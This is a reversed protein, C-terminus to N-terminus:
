RTTKGHAQLCAWWPALDREHPLSLTQERLAEAQTATWGSAQLLGVAKRGIADASLPLEPDGLAHGQRFNLVQGDRLAIILSAGYRAPYDREHSADLALTVRKRLAACNEDALGVAPACAQLTFDGRCLAWALGHQLSFRAEHPTRPAPCDAFKLAIGYTQVTARAISDPQVGQAHAQLACAITPHVHRCAPWPKFSVEHMRWPAGAGAILHQRASAEDCASGTARLWGHEGELIGLPGTVGAAALEAAVLGAQVAHGTAVQKALGPEMRCQWVGAAQMGALALAHPWADAPLRLLHACAMASAFAGTTATSYWHRYHAQGALLGLRIGAEYGIVLADLLEDASRGERQALALAAPIVTDGPHVVAERHVDDLELLSGLSGHYRAADEAGLGHLGCAWVAGAPRAQAWRRLPEAEDSAQGAHACALWDLLHLAARERDDSAIPRQLSRVLWTSWASM